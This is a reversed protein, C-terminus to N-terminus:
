SYAFSPIGAETFFTAALSLVNIFLSYNCRYYSLAPITSVASTTTCLQPSRFLM